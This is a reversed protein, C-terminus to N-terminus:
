SLQRSSQSLYEEWSIDASYIFNHPPYIVCKRWDGYFDTLVSEYGAPAPVTIKEFPLYAVDRFDKLQYSRRKQIICWERLDGVRESLFFNKALLEELQLCRQKYPLRMFERLKDHDVVLKQGKQLADKIIEPHVTAIFIIREIEFNIARQRDTFPPLSDLPFIDLWINQQVTKLEPFEVFLTRKDKLKILPFFPAGFPFKKHQANSIIPLSLDTLASPEDSELRYDYWFDVVYPSKIEAAVIKRFKEYEPRMMVVDVDDDWPVFGKHRAAGLLTGCAAFWRLNHKKCIRAFEQILNIQVNWLKKRQSTVLFGNRMEDRDINEVFTKYVGGWTIKASQRQLLENQERLLDNQEKLLENQQTITEFRNAGKGM